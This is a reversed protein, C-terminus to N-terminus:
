LRFSDILDDRVQLGPDAAGAKGVRFTEDPEVIPPDRRGIKGVADDFVEVARCQAQPLEALRALGARGLNPDEIRPDLLL